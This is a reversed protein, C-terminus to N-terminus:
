WHLDDPVRFEEPYEDSDTDQHTPDHRYVPTDPALVAVQRVVEPVALYCRDSWVVICIEGALIRRRQEPTVHVKKIKGRLSFNFGEEAQKDNLRNERLLVKAQRRAERVRREGEAKGPVRPKRIVGHNGKPRPAKGDAKKERGRNAADRDARQKEARKVQETTVLGARLLQDRISGGM